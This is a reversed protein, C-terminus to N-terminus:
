GLRVWFTGAGCRQERRTLTGECQIKPYRSCVNMQTSDGRQEWPFCKRKRNSSWVAVGPAFPVLPINPEGPQPPSFMESCFHPDTDLRM